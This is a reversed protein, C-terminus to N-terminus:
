DAQHPRASPSSRVLRSRAGMAGVVARLLLLISNPEPVAPVPDEHLNSRAYREASGTDNTDGFNFESSTFDTEGSDTVSFGPAPILDPFKIDGSGPDGTGTLGDFETSSTGGNGAGAPAPSGTNGTGGNGTGTPGPPVWATGTGGNGAGAPAPSGTTGTGGNGAGTPGPSGTTGTGGNGAGAPAPSGTSGTGSNGAGTGGGTGGGGAGNNSAGTRGPAVMSAGGYGPGVWGPTPKGRTVPEDPWTFLAINSLTDPQLPGGPTSNRGEATAVELLPGLNVQGSVPLDRLYADPNTEMYAQKLVDPVPYDPRWGSPKGVTPTDSFSARNATPSLTASCYFFVIALSALLVAVATTAALQFCRKGKHRRLHVKM